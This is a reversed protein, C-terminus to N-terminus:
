PPSLETQPTLSPKWSSAGNSSVPLILPFEGPLSTFLFATRASPISCSHEPRFAQSLITPPEAPCFHHPHCLSTPAVFPLSHRRHRAPFNHGTKQDKECLIMSTHSSQCCPLCSNDLWKWNTLPGCDGTRLFYNVSFTLAMSPLQPKAQSVKEKSTRDKLLLTLSIGAYWTWNKWQNGLLSICEGHKM